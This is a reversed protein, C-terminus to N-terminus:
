YVSIYSCSGGIFKNICRCGRTYARRLDGDVSDRPHARCPNQKWEEQARPLFLILCNSSSNRRERSLWSRLIRKRHGTSTHAHVGHRESTPFLQAKPGTVSQRRIKKWLVVPSHITTHLRTYTHTHTHASKRRLDFVNYWCFTQLGNVLFRRWQHQKSATAEVTTGSSLSSEYYITM